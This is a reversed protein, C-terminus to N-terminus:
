MLFLSAVVSSVLCAVGLEFRVSASVKTPGPTVSPAPCTVTANCFVTAGYPRVFSFQLQLAQNNILSAGLLNVDPVGCEPNNITYLEAASLDNCDTVQQNNCTVNLPRYFCKAAYHFTTVGNPLDFSNIILDHDNVGIGLGYVGPGDIDAVPEWLGSSNKALMLVRGANRSSGGNGFGDFFANVLLTEPDLFVSKYGLSGTPQYGISPISLTDQRSWEGNSKVWLQVIGMSGGEVSLVPTSLAVTDVGNYFPSGQPAVGISFDEILNWSRDSMREYIKIHLDTENSYDTISLHTDTVQYTRWDANGAVNTLVPLEAADISTWNNNAANYEFTRIAFYSEPGSYHGVFTDDSLIFGDNTIILSSESVKNTADVSFLTNSGGGFLVVWKGNTRATLKSSETFNAVRVYDGESNRRRIAMMASSTLDSDVPYVLLDKKTAVPVNTGFVSKENWDM